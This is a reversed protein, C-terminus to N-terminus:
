YQASYPLLAVTRAKRIQASLTRQHKCCIGSIRSPLIKGRETLFSKLFVSNKYDIWPLQDANNCFRCTKPAGTASKRNRKKHLRASIKLKVKKTM